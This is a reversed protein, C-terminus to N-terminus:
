PRMHAILSRLEGLATATLAQLRELQERVRAPEDRVLLQAARATLAITFIVQSVSDHLSRALRNREDLDAMEEIHEASQELQRRTGELEALLAQSQARGMEAQQHVVMLTPVAIIGAIPSLSLALGELLGRLLVLPAVTLMAMAALWLWLAPGAFFVAAQFALPVFLGTISDLGPSPALMTLILISQFILYAYQGPGPPLPRWLVVVFLLTFLGMLGAYWTFWDQIEADAMLRAAEAAVFLLIALRATV